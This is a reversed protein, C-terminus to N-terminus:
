HSHLLKKASRQLFIWSFSFLAPLRKLRRPEHLTRWLWECGLTQWVQPARKQFGAYVDLSGGLCLIPCSLSHSLREAFAEQKPSGLCCFLIAAGSKRITQMVGEGLAYGHLCGAVSLAPYRQTLKQAAREAVGPKGGLFFVSLKTQAALRLVEEGLSVGTVRGHLFPTQMLKAAATIGVGDPLTLTAKQLIASFSLNEIARMAMVGNPTVVFGGAQNQALMLVKQAANQIGIDDFVLPSLVIKRPTM